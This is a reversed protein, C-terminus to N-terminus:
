CSMPELSYTVYIIIQLKSRSQNSISWLIRDLDFRGLQTQDVYEKVPRNIGSQNNSVLRDLADAVQRCESHGLERSFLNQHYLIAAHKWGYKHWIASLFDAMKLYSGTVHTILQFDTKYSFAPALGGPTLLPINWVYSSYRAVTSLVYKCCPGYLVDVKKSTVLDMAELSGQVDFCRTDKSIYRFRIQHGSPTFYRSEVDNLVYDLYPELIKFSFCPEQQLDTDQYPLLIGIKIDLSSNEGLDKYNKCMIVAVNCVMVRLISWEM